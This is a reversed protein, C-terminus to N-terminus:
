SSGTSPANYGDGQYVARFGKASTGSATFVARGTGPNLTVVGLTRGGHKFAVTGQPHRGRVRAVMTVEAAPLTRATLKTHSTARHLHKCRLTLDVNTVAPPITLVPSLAGSSPTCGSHHASVRYYGPVVDWGFQGLATTHDPNRRNNPSMFLSGNPVATFPGAQASARTLVVTAAPVPVHTTTRVLGSPDQWGTVDHWYNYNPKCDDNPTPGGTQQGNPGYKAGSPNYLVSGDPYFTFGNYSISGDANVTVGAASTAGPSLNTGTSSGNPYLTPFGGLLGIQTGDPLELSKTEANWYAGNGLDFIGGSAFSQNEFTFPPSNSAPCGGPPPTPTPNCLEGGTGNTGHWCADAELLTGSGGQAMHAVATRDDAAAATPKLFQSWQHIQYDFAGHYDPGGPPPVYVGQAVYGAVTGGVAPIFPSSMTTASMQWTGISPGTGSAAAFPQDDQGIFKPVGASDFQYAIAVAGLAYPPAGTGSLPAARFQVITVGLTGAPGSSPVTIPAQLTAPSMWYSSAVGSSSGNLTIGGSLGVPQHLTYNQTNLGAVIEVIGGAGFLYPKSPAVQITYAGPALGAISYTGDAATAASQCAGPKGYPCASVSAGGLGLNGSVTGDIVTGALTGTTAASATLSVSQPSGPANDTYVLSATRSGTAAATVAISTTCTSGAAVSHGACSDATIKYDTANAGTLAVASIALAASGTSTVTITRSTSSVGVGVPGFDLAATSLSARAGGAGATGTLAVTQPSGAANDPVNVQGAYSGAASPSFNVTVTCSGAAPVAQGSCHDATLSFSAANAGSITLTNLNLPAHGSNTITLTQSSTTGAAVTNSSSGFAISTPNFSVAPTGAAVTLTVNTPNYALAYPGTGTTTAFAGSVTPATLIQYTQGATQTIGGATTVQLTGALAATAGSGTVALRDNGSGNIGVALTGGSAQTYSGQVTLTSPTPSPSVTGGNTVTAASSGSGCPAAQTGGPGCITGAGSLTGGQLIVSTSALTSTASTLNTTGASQTYSGNGIIVGQGSGIDVAGSNELASASHLALQLLMNVRLTGTNNLTGDIARYGSGAPGPDIVMTGANTFTSTSPIEIESFASTSASTDPDTLTLTGDNVVTGSTQVAVSGAPGTTGSLTVNDNAGITGSITSGGFISTAGELQFAGTGAGSFATTATAAILPNGTVTGGNVNFTAGSAANGNPNIGIETTGTDNVTGGNLNVTTPGGSPALQFTQGSAVNVTGATTFTGSQGTDIQLRDNVDITGAAANDFLGAANQGSAGLGNIARQGAGAPGPDSVITGDNTLTAGSAIQVQATNQNTGSTDADTLEITGNNTVNSAISATVGGNTTSASLAVTQNAGITGGLATASACRCGVFTYTGTGSGSFSAGPSGSTTGVIAGSGAVLGPGTITGGSVTLGASSPSGAESIGQEFTGNDTITGSKIDLGATNTSPSGGVLGGSPDVLLKEGADITINGSTTFTGSQGSDIQLDQGVTMTGDNILASATNQGDIFRAGLGAAGRNSVITGDANNTLTAGSGILVRAAPTGTGTADTDTLDITGDNTSTGNASLTLQAGNGGTIGVALTAGSAVAVSNATQSGNLTVTYTSGSPLCANQTGSPPSASPGSGTNWNAGTAWAGSVPSSTTGTPGTWTLDCGGAAQSSGILAVFSVASAM